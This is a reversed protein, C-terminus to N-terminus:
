TLNFINRYLKNHETKDIANIKLLEDLIANINNNVSNNGAQKAAFLLALRSCLDDVNNYFVMETKKLGSGSKPSRVFQQAGEINEIHLKYLELTHRRSTYVEREKEGIKSNKGLFQGLRRNETKIKLFIDQYNKQDFVETPLPLAMDHLNERDTENLGANLDIRHHPKEPTSAANLPPLMDDLNSQTFFPLDRFHDITENQRQFQQAIPVLPLMSEKTTDQLSVLQKKIDQSTDKQVNILPQLLKTQETFLNQDGTKEAEFRTRLSDKLRIYEKVDKIPQLSM